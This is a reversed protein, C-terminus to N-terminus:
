VGFVSMYDKMLAQMKDVAGKNTALKMSGKMVGSQLTTTNKKFGEELKKKAAESVQFGRATKLTEWKAKLADKKASFATQAADVDGAELKQAMENTVSDLEAVFADVDGDKSCGLLGLCFVMVLFVTLKKM